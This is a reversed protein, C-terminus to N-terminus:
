QHLYPDGDRYSRLTVEADIWAREGNKQLDELVAIANADDWALCHTAAMLRVFEVPDWLLGSIAARGEASDRVSMYFEHNDRFVSGARAPDDHSEAWEVLQNRYRGRV